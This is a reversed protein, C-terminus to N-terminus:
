RNNNGDYDTGKGGEKKHRCCVRRDYMRWDDAYCDGWVKVEGHHARMHKVWNRWESTGCGRWWDAEWARGDRGDHKESFM